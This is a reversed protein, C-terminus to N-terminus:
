SDNKAGPVPAETLRCTLQVIQGNRATIRQEIVVPDPLGTRDFTGDVITILTTGDAHERTSLVDLTVNASFIERAGWEEIATRGHFTRGNDDVIADNVFLDGFRAGDRSNVTRVYDDAANPILAPM